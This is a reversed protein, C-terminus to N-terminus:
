QETLTVAYCARVGANSYAMAAVTHAGAASSTVTFSYPPSTVTSQLAWDLFFEVKSIGDSMSPSATATVAVSNHFTTQDEPSTIAVVPYGVNYNTDITGHVDAGTAQYDPFTQHTNSESDNNDYIFDTSSSDALHYTNFDPPTNDAFFNPQNSADSFTYGVHSASTTDWIVTNHHIYNGKSVYYAGPPYPDYGRDSANVDWGHEGTVASMEMVNCYANVGTSTSSYIQYGPYIGAVAPVGNYQVVNDYVLASDLSIEYIIGTADTNGTITNGMIVPSSSSTDFHIGAGENNTITNNKIVAGRTRGFKVGGSGFNPLVNAYNNHTVLNGQILVGSSVLNDDPAFGGGIGLQGNDHIYNNLIQMGYNPAIAASHHGWLECNEVMWDLANAQRQADGEQGNSPWLGGQGIPAAFEEITLYQFTVNNAPGVAAAPAVSTEVLHGSPNDHFYIVHNEYDFWWQGSAIAPLSSAHLHQLPVGDFWLDEPINCALWGAICQATTENVTGRQTQGTVVYDTGNFTALPGIVESGSIIAPCSSTPPACATQGIFSDGDKPIIPTRIRYLGPQFVFTTGAPNADVVTQIATGPSISVVSGAYVTFNVGTVNAGSVAPGLSSPSFSFGSKRASVVYSGNALGTFSYSGSSDATTTASAAGRLTLTAGSGNAAPNISGSISYTTPPVASATFNEGTVNAGNVTVQLSSPSFTFGSKSATVTYSGNALGTFSYAGSSNATTTASAAGALTVTAGSGNAATSITGSISYTIASATFNEGTVNAGSVTVQLSSPSFTFGSKSATVTYSGNALGTFSYAGSSNATTTATAAGSLTVTAGSGNAATSITGSISYTIASATFNEGTVNAGNVTVPLSSPSFTFGSKSATVTYSGNSLGTFSYAGSSNATTTASAAGALTVTAGSGNAATNITGSISYTIASATFNEGTVNAGNVTVQLSSPSFTFGSKSATVTYSGNALGTFSYAGSSNATTTAGAAGALTVTAGSGNAATSITGSISYTTPPVASATFNEGTVNAGNVTVQLSSPSFTFGSKSATVTYSGNALGTFSYAGSSNATTTAGAAGALTVTAGSGNAATSITGSISYTTPPVASATFNEGTVNAGNVTVQLSSPSFTFGSKSATVTYSGNALGTFSYAGSSNATTTASAAGALTVTAGSGNAATSITGSISYTIASATFNEGIVNAGNVTVQLSSPSFTFGNKSATVTYSGNALGTFSYAGSSNATTTAGAAGALTVTAGSGNAATTITGSISYTIASATFNEGTVNAGNVSVQLSSPSFTFGSKSATVTYSGNALGTFSYAGSSNATTTAGAAGALTVTAGSGNAATSITGSISYTTPPVASATFNEGTVNAGNVTVQLSSPSFTFGSKSATVTYSGNALGTFSYAGSSNATTTAGAAGSLTVTAGSGNAATSITGSISYTTPPVASATFNEGTVNAGNVTVQLSSPSFTFGSKSATVTYSGNALGTFSYAGSSNATTTAGAAGSLTVTAGSGNAATSITGSISYTTPPVASATFNEGIVNAGNVTVQLSSPSFTFGSKSATVTYSGNALGIFNYVGFGNTTTTATAAGGLTVTAGSGNGAPSVTGSITFTNQSGGSATFNVGTVESGNVTVQVNAPSFTVGSKSAAVTYSGNALNTFTYNGSSDATTTSKIPGDLSVTAGSGSSAPSISGSIGLPNALSTAPPPASDQKASLGQCGVMAISLIAVIACALGKCRSGLDEM